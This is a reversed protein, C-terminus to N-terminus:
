RVDSISSGKIAPRTSVAGAAREAARAVPPPDPPPPAFEDVEEM